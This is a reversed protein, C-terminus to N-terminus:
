RHQPHPAIIFVISFLGRAVATSWLSTLGFRCLVAMLWCAAEHQKLVCWHVFAFAFHGYQNKHTHGPAIMLFISCCGCLCTRACHEVILDSFYVVLFAILWCSAGHKKPMRATTTKTKPLCKRTRKCATSSHENVPALSIIWCLKM